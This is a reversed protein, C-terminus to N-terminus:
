YHQTTLSAVWDKVAMTKIQKAKNEEIWLILIITPHYPVSSELNKLCKFYHRAKLFHLYAIQNHGTHGKNDLYGSSLSAIYNNPFNKLLLLANASSPFM